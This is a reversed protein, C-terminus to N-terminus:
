GSKGGSSPTQALLGGRASAVYKNNTKDSLLARSAPEWQYHTTAQASASTM